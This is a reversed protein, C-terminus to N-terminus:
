LYLTIEFCRVSAKIQTEIVFLGFSVVVKKVIFGFKCFILQKLM